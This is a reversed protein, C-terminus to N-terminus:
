CRGNVAGRRQCTTRRAASMPSAARVMAASTTPCMSRAWVLATSIVEATNTALRMTTASM